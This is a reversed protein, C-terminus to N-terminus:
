IVNIGLINKMHELTFEHAEQNFDAVAKRDIVVNYDRNVLDAVSFLVCISTCCGVVEIVDPNLDELVDALATDFFGSYRQKSIVIDYETPKLDNIVESGWTDTIAHAPFREFEKDNELHNDCLYIIRDDYERAYLLKEKIVSVIGYGAEKLSLAGEKDIFDNLMDIVLIVRM